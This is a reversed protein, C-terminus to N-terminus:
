RLWDPHGDFYQNTTLRRVNSGDADMVYIELSSTISSTGATKRDRTSHFAISRGDPSWAPRSDEAPDHTLQKVDSGDAHMVYVDFDGDVSRDFAIRSGDPSWAPGQSSTKASNTHTLQRVQGSDVDVAFIEWTVNGRSTFAIHRGDPSWTGGSSDKPLGELRRVRMTVVDVIWLARDAEVGMSFAIQHGDPSWFPAPSTGTTTLRTVRGDSCAMVYLGQGEGNRSGHFVVRRGDPSVSPTRSFEAGKSFTLQHEGTGDINISYLDPTRYVAPSQTRDSDFVIDGVCGASSQARADHAVQLVLCILVTALKNM